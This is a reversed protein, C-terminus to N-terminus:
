EEINLAKKMFTLLTEIRNIYTHNDRVFDMLAYLEHVSARKIYKKADYFLQYTDPNYIVKGKFLDYVVQNNTIGWQGYSINKFIRCPIYGKECQYTGQIAPAIYSSKILKIGQHASKNNYHQFQISNEQCAQKFGELEMENGFRGGGVTGVWNIFRKKNKKHRNKKKHKIMRHKIADIEYPLLDTAWPMFIMKEESNGYIYDAIHETVYPLCDDTYVQLLICRNDTFLEQYHDPNWNHLIYYCDYRQPMEADVQGETIFLANHLDINKIEDVTTVWYTEYDLYKFARYFAEHIYSHTHSHLPHGWIIVKSFFNEAGSLMSVFFILSSWVFINYKTM